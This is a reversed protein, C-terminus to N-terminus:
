PHRRLLDGRSLLRLELTGERDARFPVLGAQQFAWRSRANFTVEVSPHEGPMRVRFSPAPSDAPALRVFPSATTTTRQLRQWQAHGIVGENVDLPCSLRAVPPDNTWVVSVQANASDQLTGDSVTLRFTLTTTAAVNPALFTAQAQNANALVVATGGTQV